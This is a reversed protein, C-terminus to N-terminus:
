GSTFLQRWSELIDPTCISEGLIRVQDSAEKYSDFLDARLPLIIEMLFSALISMQGAFESMFGYLEIDRGLRKEDFKLFHSAESCLETTEDEENFALRLRGGSQQATTEAIKLLRALFDERSIPM